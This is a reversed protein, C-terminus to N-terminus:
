PTAREKGLAKATDWIPQWIQLFEETVLEAGEPTARLDEILRFMQHLRGPQRDLARLLPELLPLGFSNGNGSNNSLARDNELMETVSAAADADDALLM